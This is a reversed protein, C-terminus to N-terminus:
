YPRGVGGIRAPPPPPYFYILGCLKCARQSSSYADLENGYSIFSIHKTASYEGTNLWYAWCLTSLRALTAYRAERGWRLAQPTLKSSKSSAESLLLPLFTLFSGIPSLPSLLHITRVNYNILFSAKNLTHRTSNLSLTPRHIISEKFVEM